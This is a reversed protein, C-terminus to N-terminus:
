IYKPNEDTSFQLIKDSIGKFYPDHSIILVTKEKTKMNRIYEVVNNRTNEDLGNSPEDLIVIKATDNLSLRLLHIVKKQGGSLKNGLKGVNQDLFSWKSKDKDLSKFISYLNYKLFINKIEEKHKLKNKEDYNNGYIINEFISRNFLNSTNQDIFSIYKRIDKIDYEKINKGGISVKGSTPNEIGFILKIFTTKGSGSDGYISIIKNKPIELNFDKLINKKTNPYIFSVNKFQIHYENLIDLNKRDKYNDLILTKLFDNNSLLIGVRYTFEPMYYAMDSMNDFLGIILLISTTANDSTIEGNKYLNYITYLIISFIAVNAGAGIYQKKSICGITRMESEKYKSTIKDIKKMESDFGNTTSQITNINSFLDEIYDYMGDRNKCEKYTVKVCESLGYSIIFYQIIVCIFITIGLKKNIRFLNFCSIILVIIRPIFVTCFLYTFDHLNTKILHIKDILISINTIHNEKEYKDFVSNVITVVIYKAIQPEIQNHFHLSISGVLKIVIWCGILKIINYKFEKSNKINNFTGAIIYPIIITEFIAYLIQFFISSIVLSKNQKYFGKLIRFLENM